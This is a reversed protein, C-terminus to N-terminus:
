LVFLRYGLLGYYVIYTIVTSSGNDTFRFGSESVCIRVIPEGNEDTTVTFQGDFLVKDLLRYYIITYTYKVYEDKNLQVLDCFYTSSLVELGTTSTDAIMNRFPIHIYVHDKYIKELLTLNTLVNLYTIAFRNPLEFYRGFLRYEALTQRFAFSSNDISLVFRTKLLNTKIEDFLKAPNINKSRYIMRILLKEAFTSNSYFSNDKVLLQLLKWKNSWSSMKTLVPKLDLLHHINLKVEKDPILKIIVTYYYGHLSQSIFACKGQILIM